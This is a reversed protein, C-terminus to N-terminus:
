RGGRPGFLERARWVTFGKPLLKAADQWREVKRSEWIKRAAEIEEPTFTGAPRGRKNGAKPPPEKCVYLGSSNRSPRLERIRDMEAVQADRLSHFQAVLVMEEGGEFWLMTHYALRRKPNSTMGVYVVTGDRVIDYVHWVSPM